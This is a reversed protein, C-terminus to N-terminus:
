VSIQRLELITNELTEQIDNMVQIDWQVEFKAYCFASIDEM